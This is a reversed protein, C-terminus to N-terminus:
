ARLCIDFWGELLRWRQDGAVCAHLSKGGALFGPTGVTHLPSSNAHVVQNADSWCEDDRYFEIGGRQRRGKRVAGPGDLQVPPM